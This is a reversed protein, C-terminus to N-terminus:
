KNFPTKFKEHGPSGGWKRQFYQSNKGFGSNIKPDKKITMSNRFVVPNMENAGKHLEPKELVVRYHFDNDEFYAPYFNPDFVYGDKSLFFEWCEKSLTFMSWLCNGTLLWFPIKNLINEHITQLQNKGIVVDDNLFLIFDSDRYKSIGLNWSPGVGLNKESVHIDVKNNVVMNLNRISNEIDQKGNDIIFLKEFYEQQENIPILAEMLLDKRNITPIVINLKHM